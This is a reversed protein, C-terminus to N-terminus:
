ELNNTVANVIVKEEDTVIPHTTKRLLRALKTCIILLEEHSSHFKREHILFAAPMVPAEKFLTHRFTFISIYFDGPQFATNYTVLQPSPSDLLLVRDLEQFMVKQNCVCVLDPQTKREHIFDPM